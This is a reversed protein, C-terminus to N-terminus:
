NGQSSNGLVREVSKSLIEGLPSWDSSGEGDLKDFYRQAQKADALLNNLETNTM